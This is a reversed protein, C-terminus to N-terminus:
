QRQGQPPRPWAHPWHRQLRRQLLLSQRPRHLGLDPVVSALAHQTQFPQGWRNHIQSLGVLYAALTTSQAGFRHTRYARPLLGQPRSTGLQQNYLM